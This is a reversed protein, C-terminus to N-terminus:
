MCQVQVGVYTGLATDSYIFLCHFGENLVGRFYPCKFEIFLVCKATGFVMNTYM